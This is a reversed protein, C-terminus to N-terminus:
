ARPTFSDSRRHFLKLKDHNVRDFHRGGLEKIDYTFNGWVKEVEKFPKLNHNGSRKDHYKKQLQQAREVRVMALARAEELEMLQQQCSKVTEVGNAKKIKQQITTFTTLDFQIPLKSEVGYVMRFPLSRTSTKWTTRYEWLIAHLRKDWNHKSGDMDADKALMMCLTYNTREALGNANPKYSTTVRAKISFHELMAQIM